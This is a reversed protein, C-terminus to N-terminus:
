LSVSERSVCVRELSHSLLLPAPTVPDVARMKEQLATIKLDAPDDSYHPGTRDPSPPAGRAAWDVPVPGYEFIIAPDVKSVDDAATLAETNDDTVIVGGGIAHLPARLYYRGSPDEYYAARTRGALQEHEIETWDHLLGITHLPQIVPHISAGTTIWASITLKKCQELAALGDPGCLILIAQRHINSVAVFKNQPEHYLKVGEIYGLPSPKSVLGRMLLGHGTPQLGDPYDVKGGNKTRTILGM